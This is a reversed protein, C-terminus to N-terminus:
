SCDSLESKIFSKKNFIYTSIGCTVGGVINVSAAVFFLLKVSNTMDYVVGALSPGVISGIGQFLAMKAFTSPLKDMSVMEGVIISLGVNYPAQTVGFIGGFMIFVIYKTQFPLICQLIGQLLFGLSTLLAPSVRPHDMMAGVAVRCISNTIGITTLMLSADGLSFGSELLLSPLFMFFLVMSFHGLFRSM